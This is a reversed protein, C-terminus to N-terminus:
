APGNAALFEAVRRELEALEVPKVLVRERPVRASGPEELQSVDGSLFLVRTALLPHGKELAAFLERGNMRPMRLDALIVDVPEGELLALAQLGDGAEHVEAGRRKLFKAMPRRVAEEDDVLMIRVGALRQVPTPVAVAVPVATPAPPPAAAAAPLSLVFRAGGGPGGDLVLDGGAERAIQRSVYLGLGAGRRGKTSAFPRFLRDLLEPAVGHGNDAVRVSM